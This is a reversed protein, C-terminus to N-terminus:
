IKALNQSIHVKKRPELNENIQLLMVINYIVSGWIHDM